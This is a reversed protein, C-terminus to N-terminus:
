DRVSESLTKSSFIPKFNLPNVKSFDKGGEKLYLDPHRTLADPKTGLRGLCFRIVMNFGSLFESWRAQRWSLIKTTLFYELNKHDTVVDVPFTSGELYHRWIKFADFIALLEKDHVDYNLETASFTRSHFAVPHVDRNTEQVSLIAALAYDSADTEVIIPLDPRWHTLVLATTFSNKLLSFALRCKDLFDWPNNKRTLRTLPVVIDSYNHIYRRYFNAFGLFSQIDKVKKPEPWDQIIKVKGPDMRLGGPGIIHGLYEVSDTHFVCKKGNAILNHKRLRRLVESVHKVHDEENLSFILIDDLYIIVFVDLLDAFITNLFRQFGAPANTLGFPM